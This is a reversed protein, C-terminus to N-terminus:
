WWNVRRRQGYNIASNDHQWCSNSSPNPNPGLGLQYQSQPTVAFGAWNKQLIPNSGTNHNEFPNQIFPIDIAGFPTMVM